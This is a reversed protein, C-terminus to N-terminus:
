MHLCQSGIRGLGKPLSDETHGMTLGLQARFYSLAARPWCVRPERSGTM